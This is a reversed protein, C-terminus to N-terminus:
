LIVIRIMIKIITEQVFAVTDTLGEVGTKESLKLLNKEIRM